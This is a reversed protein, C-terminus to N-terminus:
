LEYIVDKREVVIQWGMRRAYRYLSSNPNFCIPTEVLELFGIDGETDGVGISGELTVGEKQVARRVVNAKNGIIQEDVVNGTFRNEPGIEYIRGYVKDFGFHTGFVDLATKPSQSVALLYYNQAKLREILERTYRYVWERQEYMVEEAVDAFDGYYVGKLHTEFVEVVALVYEEYSGRRSLWLSRERAYGERADEPFLEREILREVLEILVSSRFITGDIDFIAASRMAKLTDSYTQAHCPADLHDM